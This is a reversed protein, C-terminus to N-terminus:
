ILSEKIIPMTNKAKKEFLTWKLVILGSRFISEYFSKKEVSNLIKRSQQSLDQIPTVKFHSNLTKIRRPSIHFLRDENSSWELPEAQEREMVGPAPM